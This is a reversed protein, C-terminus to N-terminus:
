GAGRRRMREIAVSKSKAVASILPKAMERRLNTAAAIGSAAAAGASAASASASRTFSRTFAFADSSSSGFITPSREHSVSGPAAGRSSSEMKNRARWKTAPGEVSRQPAACCASREGSALEQPHGAGGQRIVVDLLLRGGVQHQTQAAAVLSAEGIMESRLGRAHKLTAHTPHRTHPVPSHLRHM